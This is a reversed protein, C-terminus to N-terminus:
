NIVILEEFIFLYSIISIFYFFDNNLHLSLFIAFHNSSM